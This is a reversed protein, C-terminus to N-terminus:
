KAGGDTVHAARYGVAYTQLESRPITVTGGDGLAIVVFPCAEDAAKIIPCVVGAASCGAMLVFLILSLPALKVAARSANVRAVKAAATNDNLANVLDTILTIAAGAFGMGLAHWVSPDQGDVVLQVGSSVIGLVAVILIRWSAKISPLFPTSPGFAKAFGAALAMTVILIALSLQSMTM